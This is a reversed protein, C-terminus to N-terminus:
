AVAEFPDVGYWEDGYDADDVSEAAVHADSVPSSDLTTSRSCGTGFGFPDATVVTV